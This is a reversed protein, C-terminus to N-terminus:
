LPRAHPPSRYTGAASGALFNGKNGAGGAWMWELGTPPFAASVLSPLPPSPAAVGPHHIPYHACAFKCALHPPAPAATSVCCADAVRACRRRHSQAFVSLWGARDTSFVKGAGVRIEDLSQRSLALVVSYCRPRYIRMVRSSNLVLYPSDRERERKKEGAREM